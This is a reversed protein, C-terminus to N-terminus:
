NAQNVEIIYLYAGEKKSIPWMKVIELAEHRKVNKEVLDSDRTYLIMTAKPAVVQLAKYFFRTYLEEIETATKRGMQTPMNTIIEDFAYKHTFDFFDRNIFYIDTDARNANEIAGDIADGYIDVGYMVQSSVKEHREILMTGVGCFPDLVQADGNLYPKALEIVLAAENPAISTAITNKRYDFRRDKITYLKLLVNFYGDKNEILRIEFEYNSTSNILERKSLRELEAAMKKTFTSKKDLAMRTKLEIRFYYPPWGEHRENLFAMLDSAYLASAASIPDMAVKPLTKLPFLIESYTRIKLLERMKDTRAVVGANFVKGKGSKIQDLTVERHDRNTLLICDTEEKYGTFPHMTPKELKICMQSLIRIEENVHKLSNEDVQMTTLHNLRAKLADAFQSYTYNSLAVLYDPKVFLKEEKEYAEFLKTEFGEVELEGMILAVNKRVKADEDALLKYLTDYQGDLEYYLVRNNLPEKIL